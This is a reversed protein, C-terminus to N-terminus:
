NSLLHDWMYGCPGSNLKPSVINGQRQYLLHAWLITNKLSRHYDLRFPIGLRDYINLRNRADTQVQHIIKRREAMIEQLVSGRWTM